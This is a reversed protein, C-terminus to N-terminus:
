LFLAPEIGELLQQTLEHLLLPSLLVPESQWILCGIEDSAQMRGYIFAARFVM